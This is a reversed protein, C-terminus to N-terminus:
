NHIGNYEITKSIENCYGNMMEKIDMIKNHSTDSSFFIDYVDKLFIDWNIGDILIRGMDGAVSKFQSLKFAEGGTIDKFKQEINKEIQSRRENISNKELVDSLYELKKQVHEKMVSRFIILSREMDIYPSSVKATLTSVANALDSTADAQAKMQKSFSKIMFIMTIVLLITVTGMVGAVSVLENISDLWDMSLRGVYLIIKIIM